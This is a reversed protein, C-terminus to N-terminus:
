DLKSRFGVVSPPDFANRSKKDFNLLKVSGYERAVNQAFQKVSIGQGSCVNFDGEFSSLALDALIKGAEKVDMFDRVQSGISLNAMEGKSVQQKIYPYLRNINEGEGYLYFLRAWTFAVNSNEFIKRLAFNTKNKYKAYITNPKLPTDTSMIGFSSDYEACTGIGVFRSVNSNKCAKALELTGEFCSINEKSDLYENHKVFWACHIVTDIRDCVDLWWGSKEMFIDRSKFIKVVKNQKCRTNEFGNRLILTVQVDKNELSKLVHRGVFGNAGTILVSKTM